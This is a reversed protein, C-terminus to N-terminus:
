GNVFQSKGMSFALFGRFSSIEVLLFPFKVQLCNRTKTIVM